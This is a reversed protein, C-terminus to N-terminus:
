FDIVEEDVGLTAKPFIKRVRQIGIPDHQGTIPNVHVLVLRGVKAAKAVKAVPTACSHGTLEAYDERGDPFYCEHILVDVGRILPIYDANAIATTDTVYALSRDPWDIRYGRSGGPHPIPFHTLTAGGPLSVSEALPVFRLPPLKPFILEHFLHTELAALKEPESHIRVDAVDKDHLVDFLFTLGMVHDLHIHSLFVDLQSTEILDRVRYFASGADFVVGMEPLMLCATHRIDSPHYGGTGLLHLKM